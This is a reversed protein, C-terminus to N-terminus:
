SCQKTVYLWVGNSHLLFQMCLYIHLWIYAVLIIFVHFFLRKWSQILKIDVVLVWKSNQRIPFFLSPQSQLYFLAGNSINIPEIGALSQLLSPNNDIHDKLSYWLSKSKRALTASLINQCISESSTSKIFFYCLAGPVECGPKPQDCCM